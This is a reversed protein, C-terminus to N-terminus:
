INGLPASTIINKMVYPFDDNIVRIQHKKIDFTYSTM